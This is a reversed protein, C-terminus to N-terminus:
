TTVEGMHRRWWTSVNEQRALCKWHSGRVLSWRLGQIFCIYQADVIAYIYVATGDDSYCCSSDINKLDINLQIISYRNCLCENELSWWM